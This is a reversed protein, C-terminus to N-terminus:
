NGRCLAVYNLDFDYSCVTTNDSKKEFIAFLSIILTLRKGTSSVLEFTGPHPLPVFEM